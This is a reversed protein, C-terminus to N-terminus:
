QSESEVCHPSKIYIIQRARSTRESQSWKDNCGMDLLREKKREKNIESERERQQRQQGYGRIRMDFEPLIMFKFNKRENKILRSFILQRNLPSVPCYLFPISIEYFLLCCFFFFSVIENVFSKVDLWCSFLTVNQSCWMYYVLYHEDFLESPSRTANRAKSLSSMQHTETNQKFTIHGCPSWPIEISNKNQKNWKLDPQSASM